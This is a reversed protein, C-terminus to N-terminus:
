VATSKAGADPSFSTPGVYAVNPDNHVFYDWTNDPRRVYGKIVPMVIEQRTMTLEVEEGTLHRVKLRVESGLPGKIKNMVDELTVARISEGNVALLVDGALVGAKQAPSGDIPTIVEIEKNDKNQDLQ